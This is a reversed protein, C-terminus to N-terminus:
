GTRNALEPAQGAANDTLERRRWPKSRALWYGGCALLV